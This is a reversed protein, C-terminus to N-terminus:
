RISASRLGNKGKKPPPPPHGAQPTKGLLEIWHWLIFVLFLWPSVRTYKVSMWWTANGTAYVIVLVTITHTFVRSIKASACHHTTPMCHKQAAVHTCRYPVTHYTHKGQDYAFDFAFSSRLTRHNIRPTSHSPLILSSISSADAGRVPQGTDHSPDLSLTVPASVM